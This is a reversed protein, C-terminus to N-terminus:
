VSCRSAAVTQVAAPAAEPRFPPGHRVACRAAAGFCIVAVSFQPSNCRFRRELGRYIWSICRSHFEAWRLACGSRKMPQMRGEVAQLQGLM